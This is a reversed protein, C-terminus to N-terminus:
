IYCEIVKDETYISLKWYSLVILAKEEEVYYIDDKSLDIAQESEVGYGSNTESDGDIKYLDKFHTIYYTKNPSPGGSYNGYWMQSSTEVMFDGYFKYSHYNQYTGLEGHSVYKKSLPDFYDSVENSYM